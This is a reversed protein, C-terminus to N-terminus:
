ITSMNKIRDISIRIKLYVYRFLGKNNVFINTGEDHIYMRTDSYFNLSDSIQM